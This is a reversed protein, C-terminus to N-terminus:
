GTNARTVPTGYHPFRSLVIAELDVVETVFGDIVATYRVFERSPEGKVVGVDEVVDDIYDVIFGVLHGQHGFVVVQLTGDDERFRQVTALERQRPERRREPLAGPLYILPMIQGRYQIVECEGTREIRARPIKDLRAVVGLPVALRGGDPGHCVLLMQHKDRPTMAVSSEQQETVFTLTDHVPLAHAYKAIGQVDLILAIRGDGLITAGAYVPIHQVQRSMSKVVIEQTDSVDDVVLGFSRGETQLVVLNISEVAGGNRWYLEDPERLGLTEALDVVPLLRGRLRFVPTGHIYELTNTSVGLRVRVLEVLSAQPVAFREGSASVMLAPVIALTLPIKLKFTAGQGPRTQIEVMGGVREINTKVVDMGVGRGSIESVTEATSFGPLFILEMAAKDGLQAAQEPTILNKSLARRKIMEPDIGNGDDGIEIDVQGGAHSARVRLTGEAPKGRLVRVESREIGHDVANRVLHTMPDRIAEILSRDLETESGIIELRVQKGCALALDRVVRPFKGWVSGLPQLRTKMVEEQLGMTIMNLRQAIGTCVHDDAHSVYEALQNRTLVLEGVMNMLKDLQSVNVRITNLNNGAIKARRADQANLVERVVSPEILGSEVLIEGLHRPDGTTQQAIAKDVAEQQVYGAEVLMEGIKPPVREALISALKIRRPDEDTETSITKAPVVPASVVPASVPVPAPPKADSGLNQLELLRARLPAYAEGGEVGNTEIATLMERVADTLELLATICVPAVPLKGDRMLALLNEGAHTLDKLKDFGLCGGTGKITHMTRFIRAIIEPDSADQELAILDQNVQELEEFGDVLFEQTAEDMYKDSM